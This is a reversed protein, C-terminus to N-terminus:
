VLQAEPLEAGSRILDTLESQTEPTQGSILAAVLRDKALYTSVLGEELTGRTVIRDHGAGVDGLLGLKVGFVETFFYAVQDFPTLEGALSRGVCAGHQVANTWHQIVRRKGAVPDHFSALDGVAFIEPRETRLYEDVVVAGRDLTIGADALYGTAPEVGVGVIALDAEIRRGERTTAGTLRGGSGRLEAVADGLVVEVGRSRYLEELSRSLEPHALAAFLRDGPEIVTVDVGLGRLSAATEMGIFGAGVVLV